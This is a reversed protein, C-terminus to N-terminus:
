DSTVHQNLNCFGGCLRPLVQDFPMHVLAKLVVNEDRNIGSVTALYLTNSVMKKSLFRLIQLGVQHLLTSWKIYFAAWRLDSVHM